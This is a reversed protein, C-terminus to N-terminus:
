HHMIEVIQDRLAGAGFPKALYHTAPDDGIQALADDRDYGSVVIVPLSPHSTRLAKLVEGGGMGPMTLDLLVISIEHAHKRFQALGHAGDHAEVVTMGMRRVVRSVVDRIPAEDDVVLAMGSFSPVAAPVSRGEALPQPMARPLFIDFRTGEPGTRTLELVGDLSGIIGRVASLGLGRGATKTTFFPDFIRARVDNAIGPGTDEVTIRVWGHEPQALPEAGSQPVAHTSASVTVIGQQEGIAEAANTLLNLIVQSLQAPDLEVWLPENVPVVTLDVKKSRSARVIPMIDAIVQRADVVERRLSARGAYALMQRTLEAARRSSTAIRDLAATAEDRDGLSDVALDVNGIIASLINNFDHAIGGAMIGLSELKQAQQVSADRARREAEARARETLDTGIIGTAYPTGDDRLLPFAVMQWGHAGGPSDMEVEQEVVGDIRQSREILPSLQATLPGLLASLPRGVAAGAPVGTLSAVRANALLVEEDLGVVLVLTATNNMLDQLLARSSQAEVLAAQTADVQSELRTYLSDLRETMVNFAVALQGVEDDGGVPTRVGFDGAAVKAAAEAVSLVPATFRRTIATVGLALLGTAALGLFLTQTLLVRAPALAAAQPTEVILALDLDPIWRWAGLVARGAYDNYMGSGNQQALAETIATSHIGRRVGERRIRQASVFEAYRNVLYGDAPLTLSAPHRITAELKTLDLHAAILAVTVGNRKVPAAITLRPRGTIASLYIKQVYNTDQALRYFEEDVAYSGATSSDTSRVVLGGPVRLQQIEEADLVASLVPAYAARDASEPLLQPSQSLAETELSVLARQRTLWESVRQAEETADTELQNRVRDRLAESAARYSALAGLSAVSFSLAFVAGSLRTTLSRSRLVGM